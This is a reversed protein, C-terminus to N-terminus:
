RGTLSLLDAKVLKMLLSAVPDLIALNVSLSAVLDLTGVDDFAVFDAFALVKLYLWFFRLGDRDLALAGDLYVFEHRAFLDILEVEVVRVVNHRVTLNALLGERHDSLGNALLTHHRDSLDDEGRALM